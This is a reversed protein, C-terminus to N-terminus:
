LSHMFVHAGVVVVFDHGVIGVTADRHFHGHTV